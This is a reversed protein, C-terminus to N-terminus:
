SGRGEAMCGGVNCGRAISNVVFIHDIKVDGLKFKKRTATRRCVATCTNDTGHSVGVLDCGNALLKAYVLDTGLLTNTFGFFLISNYKVCELSDLRELNCLLKQFPVIDTTSEHVVNPVLVSTITGNDCRLLCSGVCAVDPAHGGDQFMSPLASAAPVTQEQSTDVDM